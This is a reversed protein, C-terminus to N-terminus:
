LRQQLGGLVELLGPVVEGLVADLHLPELEIERLHDLALFLDDLAAVVPDQIQELLVLNREKVSSATKNRSFFFFYLYFYICLCNFRLVDDDSRARVRPRQGARVEVLLQDEAVIPRERDPLHGLAEAQDPRSDDAQLHAADPSPQPGVHGDE